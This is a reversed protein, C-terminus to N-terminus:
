ARKARSKLSPLLFLLVAEIENSKNYVTTQFLNSVFSKYSPLLQLRITVIAVEKITQVELPEMFNNVNSGTLNTTCFFNQALENHKIITGDKDTIILPLPILEYFEHYLYLQKEDKYENSISTEVATILNNSDLISQKIFSNSLTDNNNPIIGSANNPLDDIDKLLDNNKNFFFVQVLKIIALIFIAIFVFQSFRVFWLLSNTTAFRTDVCFSLWIGTIVAALAIVIKAITSNISVITLKQKASM